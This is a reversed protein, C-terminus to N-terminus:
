ERVRGGGGGGCVCGCGGVKNQKEGRGEQHAEKGANRKAQMEGGRPGADKGTKRGRGQEYMM